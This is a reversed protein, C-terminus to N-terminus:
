QSDTEMYKPQLLFSCHLIWSVTMVIKASATTELVEGAKKGEGIYAFEIPQGLAVLQDPIRCMRLYEPTVMGLLDVAALDLLQVTGCLLVGVRLPSSSM